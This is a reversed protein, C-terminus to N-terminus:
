RLAKEPAAGPDAPRERPALKRVISRADERARESEQESPLHRAFKALDCRDLLAKIEQRAAADADVRVLARRLDYTTMTLAPVGMRRELYRRLIDSLADYYEKVPMSLDVLADLEDFAIQEPTRPDLPKAPAAPATGRRRKEFWYGLAGVLLFLALLGALWPWLVADLPGKIDRLEGSEGEVPKPPNVILTLPPSEIERITGRDDKLIWRLSPLTQQGLAFAALTVRVSSGGNLAATDLIEFSGKEQKALAPYLRFGEPASIEAEVATPAGILAPAEPTKWKWADAAFARAALLALLAARM